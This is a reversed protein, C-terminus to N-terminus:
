NFRILFSVNYFYYFLNHYFFSTISFQFIKSFSKALSRGLYESFNFDGRLLCEGLIPIFSPCIFHDRMIFYELALRRFNFEEKEVSNNLNKEKMLEEYEALIEVKELFFSVNEIFFFFKKM